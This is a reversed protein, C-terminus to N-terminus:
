IDIILGDEAAITNKFVSRAEDLVPQLDKYRLSYHGIVMKKVNAKKAITAAQVATSHSTLAASEAMDNMFTAEHYLLDIDRIVPIIDEYYATDSCYAYSKPPPPDITLDRNKITKGEETTYDYGQKIRVIEKIPISMSEILEKKINRLRPKERFLFGCTPVKHKLPFSVVTLKDNEFIIENKEYNLFHFIIEFRIEDTFYKILFDFINKLEPHCYIHLNKKRGLLIFTSILGFLGFYHDGHLHSIFIHNIKGFKIKNRRLQIQTGEGCDILFFHESVNIVQATSFREPTPM